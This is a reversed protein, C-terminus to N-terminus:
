SATGSANERDGKPKIYPSTSIMLEQQHIIKRIQNELMDQCATPSELTEQIDSLLEVVRPRPIPPLKHAVEVSFEHGVGIPSIRRIKQLNLLM